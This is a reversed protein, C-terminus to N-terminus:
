NAASARLHAPNAGVGTARPPKSEVHDWSAISRRFSEYLPKFDAKLATFRFVLRTDATNVFIVSRQLTHGFLTYSILIEGSPNSGMAVPNDQRQVVQVSDSGPPVSTLVQQELAKVTAEDFAQVGSLPTALISAEAFATEPPTLQLRDGAGRVTWGQPPTYTITGKDEKLIVKRYQFGAHAYEEILPAFDIAADASSLALSFLLPSLIRRFM